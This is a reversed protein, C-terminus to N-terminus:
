RADREAIIAESLPGGAGYLRALEARRAKSISRLEGAPELPKVLGSAALVAEARRSKEEPREEPLIRVTVRSQEPLNLPTLLRLMGKEYIATVVTDMMVM